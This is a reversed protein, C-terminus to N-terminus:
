ECTSECAQGGAERWGAWGHILEQAAKGPSTAAAPGRLDAPAERVSVALGPPLLSTVQGLSGHAVLPGLAPSPGSCLRLPASGPLVGPRQAGHPAAAHQCRRKIAFGASAGSGGGPALGATGM